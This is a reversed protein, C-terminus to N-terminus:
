KDDCYSVHFESAYLLWHYFPERKHSVLCAVIVLPAPKDLTDLSAFEQDYPTIVFIFGMAREALPPFGHGSM